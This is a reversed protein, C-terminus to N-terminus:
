CQDKALGMPLCPYAFLLLWYKLWCLLLLDFKIMCLSHINDFYIKFINESKGLNLIDMFIKKMIEFSFFINKWERFLELTDLDTSIHNEKM